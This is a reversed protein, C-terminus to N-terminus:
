FIRLYYMTVWANCRAWLHMKNPGDLLLTVIATYYELLWFINLWHRRLPCKSQKWYKTRILLTAIFM